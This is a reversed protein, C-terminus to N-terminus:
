QEETVMGLTACVELGVHNVAKVMTLVHDFEKNDRVERWAAGMCFRTAGAEKAKHAKEVVEELSLLAHTEVNTQYRAAQPCYACDEPCGGTKISLLTCVQVESADHFQRYITAARYILQLLPLQYISTVEDKTWDCRLSGAYGNLSTM